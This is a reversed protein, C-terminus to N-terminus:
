ETSQFQPSKSKNIKHWDSEPTWQLDLCAHNMRILPSGEGIRVPNWRMFNGLNYVCKAVFM